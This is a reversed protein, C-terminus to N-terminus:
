KLAPGTVALAGPVTVDVVDGAQLTSHAIVSAISVFKATLNTAPGLIFSVPTTMLLTVVGQNNESIRAVQASFARPLQSAVYAASRGAHRYPWVANNAQPYELTPLNVTGPAPGLDHGAGDVFRLDHQANFAVAVPTREHVTVVITNPWRKSVSVTGIWAFAALRHSMSSASVDIMSPDAGLGTAALVSARSEHRLGIFQVRHVRLYSSHLAWGAGLGVTTAAV